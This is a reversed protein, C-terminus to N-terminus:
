AQGCAACHAAGVRRPRECRACAAVVARGCGECHDGRVPFSCFPCEGNRVRRLPLRRRLYRQLQWFAALTVGIGFLSLFLPGLDLPDVYDTVYDAALVVALTAAIGSVGFALPLYRSRRARLRAAILYGSGLLALTFATRLAFALLEQRNNAAELRRAQRHGAEIAPPRAAAVAAAAAARAREARDFGTQAADYRRELRDTPAAADLATRYAERALELRELAVRRDERARSLRLEAARLRDFAPETTRELRPLDVAARMWDDAQAYFWIVGVLVFAALVVALLKEGKTSEVEEIEVQNTTM